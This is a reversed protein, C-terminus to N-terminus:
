LEETEKPKDQTAQDEEIEDRPQLHERTLDALVMGNAWLGLLAAAPSPDQDQSFVNDLAQVQEPPPAPPAQLAPDPPPLAPPEEARPYAVPLAGFIHDAM